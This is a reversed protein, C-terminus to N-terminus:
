TIHIDAFVHSLRTTNIGAMHCPVNYHKVFLYNFIYTHSLEHIVIHTSSGVLHVFRVFIRQKVTKVQEVHKPLFFDMM